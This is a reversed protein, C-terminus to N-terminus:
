PSILEVTYAYIGCTDSSSTTDKCNFNLYSTATRDISGTSPASNNTTTLGNGAAFPVLEANTATHWMLWTATYSVSSSTNIAANYTNGAAVTGSTASDRLTFTVTNTTTASRYWLATIRLLGYQPIVNAPITCVALNFENTDGTHTTPSVLASSCLTTTGKAYKVSPTVTAGSINGSGDVAFGNSVFCDVTCTLGGNNKFDIGHAVSYASGGQTTPVAGMITGGNVPFIGQTGGIGILRDWASSSGVQDSFSLATSEASGKVASTSWHVIKTGIEYVASAGSNIGEDIEMGVNSNWFTAGSQLRASGFLGFCNGVANGAGSAGNDNANSNCQGATGVYFYNTGTTNGTAGTIFLLGDMGTRGGTMLASNITGGVYLIYAGLPGSTTNLSDSNVNLQNYAAVAGNTATGSVNSVSQLNPTTTTTFAMSGQFLARHGTLNGSSDVSMGTIGTPAATSGSNNGLITGTSVTPPITTYPYYCPPFSCTQALADTTIFLLALFLRKM